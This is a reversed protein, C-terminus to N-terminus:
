VDDDLDGRICRFSQSKKNITNFRPIDSISVVREFQEIYIIANHVINKQYAVLSIQFWSASQKCTYKINKNYINSTCYVIKKMEPSKKFKTYKKLLFKLFTNNSALEKLAVLQIRYNWSCKIPSNLTWEQFICIHPKKIHIHLTNPNDQFYFQTNMKLTCKDVYLSLLSVVYLVWWVLSFINSLDIFLTFVNVDKTIFRKALCNLYKCRCSGWIDVRSM